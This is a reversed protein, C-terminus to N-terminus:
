CTPLFMYKGGRLFLWLARITHLEIKKGTSLEKVEQGDYTIMEKIRRVVQPNGGASKEELYHTLATKFDPLDVAHEAMVILEPFENRFLSHINILNYNLLDKKMMM